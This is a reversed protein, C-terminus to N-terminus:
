FLNTVTRKSFGPSGQLSRYACTVLRVISKLKAYKSGLNLKFQGTKKRWFDKFFNVRSQHERKTM